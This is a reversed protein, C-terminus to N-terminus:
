PAAEISPSAAVDYEVDPVLASLLVVDFSTPTALPDIRIAIPAYAAGVARRVTWNRPNLVDRFGAPDLARPAIDFSVRVANTRVAVAAIM